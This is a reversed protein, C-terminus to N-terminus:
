FPESDTSYRFSSLYLSDECDQIEQDETALTAYLAADRLWEPYGAETENTQESVTVRYTRQPM